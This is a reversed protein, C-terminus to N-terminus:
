RREQMAQTKTFRARKLKALTLIAPKAEPAAQDYHPGRRGNLFPLLARPILEWNSPDTNLRDGLCKLCHGAPVPGHLQEWLHKHKLVYRREYGTHPNTEAISIEVYGDVNVREHGLYKVNPPVGGKKFQTKASNANYPMRQGKNHPVHGKPFRYAAGVHDGRRLRCAAPSALYTESKRLGLMRAHNYVASLSRGLRHAVQATSMDPYLTRLLAEDVCRWLKRGVAWGKRTCLSKFHDLTVDRRRFTRCFVAHAKRRPQACHRKIWALEKPSYPIRQGRGSM